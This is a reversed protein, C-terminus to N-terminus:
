KLNDKIYDRIAYGLTNHYYGDTLREDKLLENAQNIISGAKQAIEEVIALQKQYDEIKDNLFNIHQKIAEFCENINFVYTSRVCCCSDERIQDKNSLKSDDKKLEDVYIYMPVSETQYRSGYYITLYPHMWDENPNNKGFFAGNINKQKVAFESGDKKYLRNVNEWAQKKEEYDKKYNELKLIIENVSM